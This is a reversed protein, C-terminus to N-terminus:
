LPSSVLLEMELVKHQTLSCKLLCLHRGSLCFGHADVACPLGIHASDISIHAKFEMVSITYDIYM